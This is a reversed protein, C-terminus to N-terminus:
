KGAEAVHILEVEVSLFEKDSGSNVKKASVEVISADLVGSHEKDDQFSERYGIIPGLGDFVKQLLNDLDTGWDQRPMEPQKWRGKKQYFIVTVKYLANKPGSKGLGKVANEAEKEVLDKINDWDSVEVIFSWKKM